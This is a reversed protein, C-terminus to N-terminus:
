WMVGNATLALPTMYFRPKFSQAQILLLPSLKFFAGRKVCATIM